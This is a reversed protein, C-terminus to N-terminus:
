RAPRKGRGSRGPQVGPLDEIGFEARAGRGNVLRRGVHKGVSVGRRRYEVQFAASMRVRSDGIGRYRHELLTDCRQFATRGRNARRGAHRRRETRYSAPWVAEACPEVLACVASSLVMMTVPVRRLSRVIASEGTGTSTMEDSLRVLLPRASVLLNSL